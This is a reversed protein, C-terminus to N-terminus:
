TSPGCQSSGRQSGVCLKGAVYSVTLVTLQMLSVCPDLVRDRRAAIYPTGQIGHVTLLEAITVAQSILLTTYVPSGRAQAQM